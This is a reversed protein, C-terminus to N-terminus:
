PAPPPASSRAPRPASPAAPQQPAQRAFPRMKVVLGRVETAAAALTEEPSPTAPGELLVELASLRETVETMLDFHRIQQRAMEALREGKEFLEVFVSV